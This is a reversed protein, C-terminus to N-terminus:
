STKTKLWEQFGEKDTIHALDSKDAWYLGHKDCWAAYTTKSGRHLKIRSNDFLMLIKVGPNCALVLQMKKRDIATFRGKTEIYIKGVKFDPTYKRVVEPVTYELKDTEYKFRVKLDTIFEATNAEYKSRYTTGNYETNRSVKKYGRM